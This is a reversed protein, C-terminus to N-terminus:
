VHRYFLLSMTRMDYCLMCHRCMGISEQFHGHIYSATLPVANHCSDSMCSQDLAQSIRRLHLMFFGFRVAVFCMALSLMVKAIMFHNGCTGQGPCNNQDTDASMADVILAVMLTFMGRRRHSNEIITM